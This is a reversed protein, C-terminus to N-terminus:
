ESEREEKSPHFPDRQCIVPASWFIGPQGILTIDRYVPQACSVLIKSWSYKLLFFSLPLSLSLFPPLSAPLFFPLFSHLFLFFSLIVHRSFTLGETLDLILDLNPILAKACAHGKSGTIKGKIIGGKQDFAWDSLGFTWAYIGSEGIARCNECGQQDKTHYGYSMIDKSLGQSM